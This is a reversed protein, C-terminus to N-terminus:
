GLQSFPNDGEDLHASVKSRAVPTLGLEALLSQAHRIAENRQSIEPRSRIMISGGETETEYTRGNDEILATTIEVEELRSAALAIVDTDASSAIGMNALISVLNDFIKAAKESLWKPAEPLEKPAKPANPNMRSPQDTGAIIKLHDPKRKRGGIGRRNSM